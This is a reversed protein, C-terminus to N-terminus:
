ATKKEEVKSWKTIPGDLYNIPPWTGQMMKSLWFFQYANLPM